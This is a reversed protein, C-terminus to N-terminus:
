WEMQFSCEPVKTATESAVSLPPLLVEEREAAGRLWSINRAFVRTSAKISAQVAATWAWGVPPTTEDPPAVIPPVGPLIVIVCLVALTAILQCLKPILAPSDTWNTCGLVLETASFRTSPASGDRMM